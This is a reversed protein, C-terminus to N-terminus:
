LLNALLPNSHRRNRSTFGLCVLSFERSSFLRHSSVIRRTNPRESFIRPFVGLTEKYTYDSCCVFVALDSAYDSMGLFEWDIVDTENDTILFSTDYFDNHCLVINLRRNKVEKDLLNAIEFM